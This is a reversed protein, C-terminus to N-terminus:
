PARRQKTRRPNPSPDIVMVAERRSKHTAVVHRGYIKKLEPLAQKSVLLHKVDFHRLLALRTERPATKGLLVGVAKRREHIDRRGRAGQAPTTAFPYCNCTSIVRYTISPQAVLTAGRPVAREFFAEQRGSPGRRKKHPARELRQMTRDISWPDQSRGYHLGLTLALM